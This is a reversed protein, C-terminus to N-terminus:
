LYNRSQKIDTLSKPRSARWSILFANPYMIHYKVIECEYM